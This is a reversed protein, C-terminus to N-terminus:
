QDYLHLINEPTDYNVIMGNDLVLIRDCKAVTNLRHAITMVTRDQFKEKIITQILDDTKQDVHATAEDILLIESKKLTARAITILQRQGMSLNNGSEAVSMLLGEPHHTVFQKLQVDELVKWCQEDSYSNYPDLNYRLTGSFLISQQPIVTLHSRLHNLTIRSIDVDDILIQGDVNSRDIFRLIGKVLSSKGAGTRGIIGIKQGSEIRLNIYRIAYELNPRHRLSYNRFEITGRIPWEPSTKVLRKYGGEDEEPPLHSYEDIREGSTMLIDAESLRRVGWQFSLAISIASILSLAVKSSDIQNHFLVIQVSTVLFNLSCVLSLLLAFPQSAAQVNICASTNVDIRNSILQIFSNEAKFAHITPLGNLSTSFLAYIPSCTISELRKLQRSPKQHFRIILWIVPVLIILLLFVSPNFFGVIFMSGATMLLAIVGRLFLFPVLEDIVHQDKSARNLIRGTSNSEFFQISTYLLGRLMNNHFRNSGHLVVTFYYNMRVIDAFVTAIILSFYIYAFVSSIQEDTEARKLLISLCCNASDSLVEGLLLLVMLLCFGFIGSPPATFWQYWVSWRVGDNLSTEDTIISQADAMSPNIDLMDALVSTENKNPDEKRIINEKLCGQKDIHGHSLFITQHSEHLFQAQHTALLRTKNKLLGYPGICRDYIQKAVRRDVASLPDDLLYIDEDGYLARALAVRAKQGGSLNAGKEGIMTLEGGSGLLRLDVDLCCAYIVQKYRQEDFLRNLLINNRFTDAFIWPSQATYSFSSDNTNLQGNILNMEGLIAALLASKGSGVSGVIGVFTGQEITLNLLSLCSLENHWSFSANSMTISGKQQQHIASTSLRSQHEQKVSLCMFADIRKSALRAESLKESLLPLYFMAHNRILAFSLLAPFVNTTSLPYDLLWATGFTLFALLPTSIFFQTTNLARLRSTRRISALENERMKTICDEMPKEWNYMKVAHCGHIFENFAQIRKDSCISTIKYYQGFKQSFYLQILIFLSFLAFGSLTPLPHLICCLLGFIIIAELLGECVWGLHNCIEEFKFTDKAILNIIQGTNMQERSTSKLSLSHKYIIIILANRIRIGVRASRFTVQRDMFSHIVLCIFLSVLYLYGVTNSEEKDMMNLIFQRLLLPQAICSILFPLLALNAFIYDKGFEKNVIKWTTTSSWDYSHLRDLLVSIKDVHPTDDLDNETLERKHGLSLIPYIWSWCLVHLLRAYSSEAWELRSSQREYHNNNHHSPEKNSLLLQNEDDEQQKSM